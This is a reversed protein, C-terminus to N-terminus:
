MASQAASDDDEGHEQGLSQEEHYFSSATLMIARETRQVLRDKSRQMQKETFSLSSWWEVALSLESISLNLLLVQDEFKWYVLMNTFMSIIATSLLIM